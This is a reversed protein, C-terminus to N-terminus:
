PTSMPTLNTTASQSAANVSSTDGADFEIRWELKSQPPELKPVRPEGALNQPWLEDVMRSGAQKLERGAEEAEKTNLIAIAHQLATRNGLPIFAFAYAALLVIAGEM